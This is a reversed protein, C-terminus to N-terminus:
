KSAVTLSYRFYTPERHSNSSSKYSILNEEPVTLPATYSNRVRELDKNTISTFHNDTYQTLGLEEEVNSIIPEGEAGNDVINIKVPTDITESSHSDIGTDDSNSRPSIPISTYNSTDVIDISVLNTDM